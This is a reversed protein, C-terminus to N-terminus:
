KLRTLSKSASAVWQQMKSPGKLPRQTCGHARAIPSSILLNIYYLFDMPMRLLNNVVVNTLSDAVEIEYQSLAGEPQM